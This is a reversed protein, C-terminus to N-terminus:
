DPKGSLPVFGFQESLSGEYRWGVPTALDMQQSSLHMGAALRPGEFLWCVSVNGGGEGLKLKAFELWTCDMMPGRQQDVVAIDVFAGDVLFRLGRETLGDIYTETDAPSMFGVRAIADDACLSANPVEDVFADWGGAYERIIADRRVIVSIAEVLVAM